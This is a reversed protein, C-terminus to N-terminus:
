AEASAPPARRVSIAPTPPGSASAMRSRRRWRPPHAAPKPCARNDAAPWAAVHIRSPSRRRQVVIHHRRVDFRQQRQRPDTGVGGARDGTERVLLPHGDDVRVYAAHDGPGHVAPCVRRMRTAAHDRRRRQTTAWRHQRASPKRHRQHLQARRHARRARRPAPQARQADACPPRVAIRCAGRGRRTWRYAPVSRWTRPRSSSTNRPM